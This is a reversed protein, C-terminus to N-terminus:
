LAQIAQVAAHAGTATTVMPVGLRVATSRIKGEDTDYGTRTPTNIVLQIEGNRLMDLVNPRAGEAIKKLRTAAISHRALADATGGTSFLGFGMSKLTRAIEIIRPKDADRVSLFVNGTLPLEVGAGMAAKALAIPLSAELGMVEG